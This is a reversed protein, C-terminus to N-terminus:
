LGELLPLVAPAAAPRVEGVTAVSRVRRVAEDLYAADVDIGIFDLGLRIAALATTGLGMFPDLVVGARQVGHLRICREPLKPPFTAPHPRDKDRSQITEYPLFWVNGRCRRDPRTGTEGWRAVNSKDQYPVGIALRDLPTLGNPTFHFIDEHCNNVFHNSNVPNYHGIALDRDLHQAADERDIAISKVWVIRNQLVFSQRAVQAVELPVWPNRPTGGVNLFFSGQPHLVQAVAHMWQATWHLYEARPRDDACTSYATGINYPPSTVVVGVSAAALTPLVDLCDGRYFSLTSPGVHLVEVPAITLASVADVGM